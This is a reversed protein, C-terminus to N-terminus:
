HALRSRKRESAEYHQAIKLVLSTLLSIAVLGLFLGTYIILVLQLSSDVASEEM